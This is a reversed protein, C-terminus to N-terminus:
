AYGVPAWVRAAAAALGVPFWTLWAVRSTLQITDLLGFVGFALVAAGLGYCVGAAAGDLRRGSHFAQWAVDALLLEYAVAGPLGLDLAAQLFANHAHVILFTSGPPLYINYRFIVGFNYLGIGTLPANAIAQLAQRWIETRTEGTGNFAALLSSVAELMRGPALSFLGISALGLAALAAIAWLRQRAWLLLIAAAALGLWAARSLSLALYAAMIGLVGVYWIGPVSSATALTRARGRFLAFGLMPPIYLTLMGAVENPQFGGPAGLRALLSTPAQPIYRILTNLASLKYTAWITGAAGVFTVALGLLCLLGFAQWFRRPSNILSVTVAYTALGILFFGLRTKSHYPSVVFGVVGMILLVCLCVLRWKSEALFQKAGAHALDPWPTSFCSIRMGRNRWRPGPAHHRNTLMRAKLWEDATRFPLM